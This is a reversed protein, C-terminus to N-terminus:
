LANQTVASELVGLAAALHSPGTRHNLLTPASLALLARRAEALRPWDECTSLGLQKRKQAILSVLKRGGLLERRGWYLHELYVADEVWHGPRVEAFDVLVASADGGGDADNDRMANGPHLDGHCWDAIRRHDWLKTWHDLQKGAQKLARKWRASDPLKRSRARSRAERLVVDWDRTLSEGHLAVKESARHFRGVADILLDFARGDEPSPELPGDPMRQMVVWAFDYSGISEGHAYLKPAVREPGQLAELWRREVPPVPLKVVAPRPTGDDDTYVAYGTLAGGRQWQTRFWQIPGLRQECAQDLAPGLAAAFPHASLEAPLSLPSKAQPNPLPHVPRRVRSAPGFLQEISATSEALFDGKAM